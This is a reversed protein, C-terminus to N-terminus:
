VSTYIDLVYKYGEYPSASSGKAKSFPTIFANVTKYAQNNILLTSSVATEEEEKKCSTTLLLPVFLLFIWHKM